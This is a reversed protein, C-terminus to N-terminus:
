KRSKLTMNNAILQLFFKRCSTVKNAIYKYSFKYEFLDFDANITRLGHVRLLMDFEKLADTEFTINHDLM